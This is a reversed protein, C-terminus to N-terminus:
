VYAKIKELALQVRDQKTMTKDGGLIGFNANMPQFNHPNASAIYHAMAGLMTEVPFPQIQGHTVYADLNLAAVLGSGASEVYGEVGTMQGAFFLNPYWKMQYGANLIQPSNLFTNRHMVGYRVFEAQELGPIMRFIRRQEGWTLHTQFGVMNYLSDAVNDQRLQVVAFPKHQKDKALGIPKLPGYLLTKFGRAAMVEVPMCGEFVTLDEFSKLEVCKANVLEHYFSFYQEKTMPCNIYDTEESYRSKRYAVSFDISDKEIIPAVADFFHLNFVGCLDQISSALTSSTLPGSCVITLQQPDIEKVEQHLLKFNPFRLLQELVHQSFLERDVALASGAALASADASKMIVSDLNRMEEKLLGVANTLVNSRLSNSCVLEAVNGTQHAETMQDPRMEILEVEYGKKLLQYTAECGALGAGIVKVKM